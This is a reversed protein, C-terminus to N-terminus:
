SVSQLGQMMQMILPSPEIGLEKRLLRRYSRYARLAECRNGQALHVSILVRYASERLPEFHVAALGAEIAEAYRGLALFRECLAELGHLCLQRMRERELLVWDDAAWDPLLRETLPAPDLDEARCPASRETLRRVTAVIEWADVVLRDTLRLHTSTAVIVPLGPRRLRWLASRLSAASCAQTSDPWLRGAVRVRLAPHQHFALFALLRQASLPLAVETEQQLLGFGGMLTLRLPEPEGTGDGAEALPWRLAEDRGM